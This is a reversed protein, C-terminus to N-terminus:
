TTVEMVDTAWAGPSSGRFVYAERGSRRTYEEALADVAPGADTRGLIAVTGGSGGGTIKAGYLGSVPGRQRVLDVILDTGDSGLGCASYSAHAAYMLEGMECLAADTIEGRLLERFRHARENEGIPHLLPERIAYTRAPDVWTM